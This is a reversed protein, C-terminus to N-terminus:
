RRRELIELFAQLRTVMQGDGVNQRDCGDGDLILVPFGERELLEKARYAGGLTQKCGWHDFYVIGDARLQKATELLKGIRRDGPGGMTNSLLKNAMAEYPRNEDLEVISDFNMDCSLLQYTSSHNIIKKISDQWYPLTHAWLIRIEDNAPAAKEVDELLLEFYREADRTGLLVHTFFIKCMESTMDNPLYTESLREFYRRYLGMSRNGRRIAQRLEEEALKRGTAEELFGAMGRLQDAVYRRADATDTNPVDVTFHPVNWLNALMRFTTNNADCTLTTNVICRPKQLVGSLTTGLLIKHYSCYTQPVGSNEAYRIFERESGAGNIYCALGETFQPIIGMAHLIECPLFVSVVASDQPRALPARISRNCVVAAHKQHPLLRRDPFLRVQQGSAFYAARLLSLAREPNADIAAGVIKGFRNVISNM